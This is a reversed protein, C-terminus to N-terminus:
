TLTQKGEVTLDSLKATYGFAFKMLIILKRAPDLGEVHAQPGSRCVGLEQSLRLADQYSQHDDNMQSMIFNTTGNLIGNIEQIRDDVFSDSLVRTIPVGGAVSAEFFLDKGNVEAIKGLESEYAAIIDKNATVVNKGSKLAQSIYTKAVEPSGMVEVAIDITEFQDTIPLGKEIAALHATQDSALIKIIEMNIDTRKM